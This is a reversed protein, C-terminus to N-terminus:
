GTAVPVNITAYRPKRSFEIMEFHRLSSLQLFVRTFKRDHIAYMITISNENFM